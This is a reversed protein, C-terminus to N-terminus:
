TRVAAGLRAHGQCSGGPSSLSVPAESGALVGTVMGAEGGGARPPAREVRLAPRAPPAPRARTPPATQVGIALGAPLTSSTPPTSLPHSAPRVSGRRPLGPSAGTVYAAPPIERGRGPARPSGAAYRARGGGAQFSGLAARLPQASLDEADPQSREWVPSSVRGPSGRACASSARGRGRPRHPAAQGGVRAASSVFGARSRRETLPPRTQPSPGARARRARPAPCFPLPIPRSRGPAPPRDRSGLPLAASRPGVRRPRCLHAPPHAAGPVRPGRGLARAPPGSLPNEQPDGTRRSSAALSRPVRTWIYTM